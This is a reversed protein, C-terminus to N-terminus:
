FHINGIMECGKGVSQGKGMDKLSHGHNPGIKTCLLALAMARSRSSVAANEQHFIPVHISLDMM